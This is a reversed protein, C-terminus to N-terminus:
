GRRDFDFYRSGERVIDRVKIIVQNGEVKRTLPAPNCGGKVENIRESPFRLGCNNCAMVDSEQRYGKGSSWCTDCADFAARIVGDSSKMIFYRIDVGRPSRYSFYRAKGDDFDSAPFSFEEPSSQAAEATRAQAPGPKSGNMLYIGAGAAFVAVAIAIIFPVRRNKGTGLVASKKDESTNNMNKETNKKDSM